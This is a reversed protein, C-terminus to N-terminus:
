DEGMIKPVRRTLREIADDSEDPDKKAELKQRWERPLRRRMRKIRSVRDRDDCICEGPPSDGEYGSYLYLVEDGEHGFVHIGMDALEQATAARESGDDERVRPLEGVRCRYIARLVNRSPM